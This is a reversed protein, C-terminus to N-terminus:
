SQEMQSGQTILIKLWLDEDSSQLLDTCKENRVSAVDRTKETVLASDSSSASPASDGNM